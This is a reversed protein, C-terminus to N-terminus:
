VAKIQELLLELRDLDCSIQVELHMPLPRDDGTRLEDLRRRRDRRLPEYGSVGTYFLLYKIRNVHNVREVALVKRDRCLRRRDEKESTPAKVM